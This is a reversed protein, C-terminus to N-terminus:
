EQPLRTFVMAGVTHATATLSNGNLQTLRASFLPPSLNYNATPVRTVTFVDDDTLWWGWFARGLM